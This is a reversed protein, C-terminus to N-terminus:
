SIYYYFNTFLVTVLVNLGWQVSGFIHQLFYLFSDTFELLGFMNDLRLLFLFHLLFIYDQSHVLYNLNGLM